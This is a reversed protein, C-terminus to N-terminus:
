RWVWGSGELKIREPAAERLSVCEVTHKLRREPETLEEFAEFRTGKPMRQCRCIKPDM